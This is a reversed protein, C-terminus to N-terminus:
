APRQPELWSSLDRDLLGSLRRIDREHDATLQRCLEPDLSRRPRRVENWRWVSHIAKRRVPRPVLCRAMFRAAQPPNHLFWLLRRSRLGSATNVKAFTLDNPFTVGLFRCVGRFAGATDRAFDDFITVHVRDRGFVDFYRKVQEAYRAVRRYFLPHPRQLPTLHDLDLGLRRDEEADLARALDEHVEIPVGGYSAILNQGHLAWIMDVPKRLMILIRAEPNFAKIEKAATRSYLYWPSAEGVWTEDRAEAFLQRYEEEDDLAPGLDQGFFHIEKKPSMFVDPLARLYEYLATTGSKPAGVLFLNPIRLNESTTASGSTRGASDLAEWSDFGM